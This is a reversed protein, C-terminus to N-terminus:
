VWKEGGDEGQFDDSQSLAESLEDEKLAYVTDWCREIAKDLLAIVVPLRGDSFRILKNTITTVARGVPVPNSKKGEKTPHLRSDCFAMLAPILDLEADDGFTDRAWKKFQERAAGDIIPKERAHACTSEKKTIINDNIDQSVIKDTLSSKKTLQSSKKTMHTLMDNEAEPFGCGVYIRRGSIHGLGDRQLTVKIFGLKELQTILRAISRETMKYQEAFYSNHAWCYGRSNSLARIEGYMLKANATLDECYRVPGPIVADFAPERGQEGYRESL